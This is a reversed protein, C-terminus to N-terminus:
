NLLWSGSDLVWSPVRKPTDAHRRIPTLAFRELWSSTRLREAKLDVFDSFTPSIKPQTIAPVNRWYATVGV